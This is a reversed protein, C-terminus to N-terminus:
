FTRMFFDVTANAVDIVPVFVGGFGTDTTVFYIISMVAGKAFFTIGAM